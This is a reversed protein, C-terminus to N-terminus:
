NTTRRELFVTDRWVGHHQATRERVGLTRFGAAHHLALSARNEPFISTQLTWLGAEDAANVQKHLLTKGVGRGRYDAAVYVSTEAVGAYCDRTSVPTAAARLQPIWQTPLAGETRFITALDTPSLTALDRTRMTRWSRVLRDFLEIVELPRVLYVHGEAVAHASNHIRGQPTVLVTFSDGPPSEARKDGLFRLHGGAQRVDGAGLEGDAKAESKTEWAVWTVDDFIWSADPASDNAGDGDSPVAGALHGMLVVAAEYPKFPTDELAKRADAVAEDFVAASNLRTAANALVGNMAHLDLPDLEPTAVTQPIGAPAALHSLWDADARAPDADAPRLDLWRCIATLPKMAAAPSATTHRAQNPTRRPSTHASTLVTATGTNPSATANGRHVV